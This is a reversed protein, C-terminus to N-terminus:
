RDLCISENLCNKPTGVVYTKMSFYSFKNEIVCGYRSAQKLHLMLNSQHLLNIFELLLGVVIPLLRYVMTLANKEM